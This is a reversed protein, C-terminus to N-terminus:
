TIDAAEAVAQSAVRAAAEAEANKRTIYIHKIYAAIREKLFAMKAANTDPGDYGWERCLTDRVDVAINDNVVITIQAM